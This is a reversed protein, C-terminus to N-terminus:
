IVETAFRYCLIAHSNRLIKAIAVDLHGLRNEQFSNRGITSSSKKDTFTSHDAKNSSYASGNRLEWTMADAIRKMSHKINFCSLPLAHM